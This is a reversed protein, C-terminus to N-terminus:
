ITLYVECLDGCFTGFAQPTNGAISYGFASGQREATYTIVSRPDGNVYVLMAYFYTSNPYYSQDTVYITDNTYSPDVLEINIQVVANEGTESGPDPSIQFEQPTPSPTITPTNTPTSTPTGTNTPLPTETSTNTLTPTPTETGTPSPTPTPGTNSPTPTPNPTSNPTSTPLPTATVTAQPTPTPLQQEPCFILCAIKNYYVEIINNIATEVGAIVWLNGNIDATTQFRQTNSYKVLSFQPTFLGNTLNDLIKLDTGSNQNTGKDFNVEYRLNINHTAPEFNIVGVKVFANNGYSQEDQLTLIDLNTALEIRVEIEYTRFPVFGTFKKFVFMFLDSNINKASQKLGIQNFDLPYPLNTRESLLEYWNEEGYPYDSFGSEWGDDNKEFNTFFTFCPINNPPTLPSFEEQHIKFKGGVEVGAVQTLKKIRSHFPETM